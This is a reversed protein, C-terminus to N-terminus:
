DEIIFAYGSEYRLMVDPNADLYEQLEYWTDFTLIEPTYFTLIEPTCQPAEYTDILKYM